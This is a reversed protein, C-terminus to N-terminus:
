TAFLLLSLFAVLRSPTLRLALWAWVLLLTAHVGIAALSLFRFDGTHGDLIPIDYSPVSAGLKLPLYTLLLYYVHQSNFVGFWARWDDAVRVARLFLAVDDMVVGYLLPFRWLWVLTYAGVVGLALLWYTRPALTLPRARALRPFAPSRALPRPAAIAM